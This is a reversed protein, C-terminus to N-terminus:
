PYANSGTVLGLVGRSYKNSSENPKKLCKSADKVDISATNLLPTM